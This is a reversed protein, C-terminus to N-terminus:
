GHKPDGCMGGCIRDGELKFSSKRSRPHRFQSVAPIFRRGDALTWDVDIQSAHGIHISFTLFQQRIQIPMAGVQERAAALHSRDDGFDFVRWDIGVLLFPVIM